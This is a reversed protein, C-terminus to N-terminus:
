LDIGVLIRRSILESISGVQTMLAQFEADAAIAEQARGFSEWNSFTIAVAWLGTEPGTHVRNLQLQQAGHKLGGISLELRRRLGM